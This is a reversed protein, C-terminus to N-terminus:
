LTASAGLIQPSHLNPVMALLSKLATFKPAITNCAFVVAQFYEKAHVAFNKPFLIFYFLNVRKPANFKCLNV